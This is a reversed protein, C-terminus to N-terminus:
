RTKLLVYKRREGDKLEIIQLPGTKFGPRSTFRVSYRGPLLHDLVFAGDPAPTANRVTNWPRDDPTVTDITVWGDIAGGDASQVKGSINGSPGLYIVLHCGAAEGDKKEISFTVPGDEGIDGGADTNVISLNSPLRLQIDYRGQPVDLFTFAGTSDTVARSVVRNSRQLEVPVRPLPVPNRNDYTQADSMVIGTLDPIQQRAAINRLARLEVESQEIPATRSCIGTSTVGMRQFADILYKRGKEFEYGCDGGGFGTKVTVIEGAKQNGRFSEVVRVRFFRADPFFISAISPFQRSLVEGVFDADGYRQLGCPKSPLCSCAWSTTGHALVVALILLIRTILPRPKPPM